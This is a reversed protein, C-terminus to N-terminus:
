HGNEVRKLTPESFLLKWKGNKFSWMDGFVYDGDHGGYLIFSNNKPDYIIISHNRAPPAKKLRLKKWTNYKYIWTDNVRAAGNWGGFRLMFNESTNYAMCSNFILPVNSNMRNWKNGDWSWMPGNYNKEKAIVPNGGFLIVQKITPDYSMVAGSRPTPGITDVKEWKNGDFEWTDGTVWKIGAERGGFLVVKKRVPDYAIATESRADPHIDVKVEKWLTDNFIWTDDLYHVPNKDNGFLVSNGGFLLIYDDAEVMSPFTRPSPGNDSIKNWKDTSFSWTDGCVKAETAGGFLIISKTPPYYVMNHGNRVGPSQAPCAHLKSFITLISIFIKINREM